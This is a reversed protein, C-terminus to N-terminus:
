CIAAAERHHREPFKCTPTVDTRGCYDCLGRERLRMRRQLEHTLENDTYEDLDKPYSM